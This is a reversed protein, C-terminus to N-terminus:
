QKIKNVTNRINNVENKLRRTERELIDIRQQLPRTAQDILARIKQEEKTIM